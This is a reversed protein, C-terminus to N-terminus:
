SFTRKLSFQSFARRTSAGGAKGVHILTIPTTRLTHLVHSLNIDRAYSRNLGGPAKLSINTKSLPSSSNQSGIVHGIASVLDSRWLQSLTGHNSWVVMFIFSVIISVVSWSLIGRM